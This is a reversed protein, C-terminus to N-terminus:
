RKITLRDLVRNVPRFNKARIRRGLSIGTWLMRTKLFGLAGPVSKRFFYLTYQLQVQEGSFRSKVVSQGRGFDFVRIDREILMPLLNYILVSGPSYRSFRRDFAMHLGLMSHNYVICAYHAVPNGALYMLGIWCMGEYQNVMDKIFNFYTEDKFEARGRAPKTSRKEINAMVQLLQDTLLVFDFTLPGHERDLKRTYRRVEHRRKGSILPDEVEFFPSFSSLKSLVWSREIGTNLANSLFQPIEQFIIQHYTGLLYEIVEEWDKTKMSPDALIAAKDLYPSGLLTLNGGSEQASLFMLSQSSNSAVVVVRSSDKSQVPAVTFWEPHNFPHADNNENWLKLWRERLDPDIRYYIDLKIGM